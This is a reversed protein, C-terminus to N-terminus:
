EEEDFIGLKHAETASIDNRSLLIKEAATRAIM